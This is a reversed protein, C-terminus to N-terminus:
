RPNDTQTRQKLVPPRLSRRGLLLLARLRRRRQRRCRCSDIDIGKRDNAKPADQLGIPAM